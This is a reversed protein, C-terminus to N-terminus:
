GLEPGAALVLRAPEGPPSGPGRMMRTFPREAAFGYWQLLPRLEDQADCLDVVIEDGRAAELALRILAAAEAAEAAVLPGVQRATRGDRGLVFGCVGGDREIVHGGAPWRAALAQLLAPRAVGFAVADLAVVQPMDQPHLIRAVASMHATEAVGPRGRPPAAQGGAPRRWRTLGLCDRFGASLYVPRGAPTADLMPTLRLSELHDLAVALLRRALGAGRCAPLVLVMSVWAFGGASARPYPLVVTSAALIDGVDPLRLGWGRGLALMTRWDAETQNWHAANSLALWEAPAATALDVLRPETSAM